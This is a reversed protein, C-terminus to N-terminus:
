RANTKGLSTNLASKMKEVALAISKDHNEETTTVAIPDKGKLRAEIVCKKDDGGDKHSNVDSLYLEIRTLHKEFRSLKTSLLEQIQLNYEKSVRLNNDSNIQIEM